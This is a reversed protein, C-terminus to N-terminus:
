GGLLKDDALDFFGAADALYEPEYREEKKAKAIWSLELSVEGCSKWEKAM